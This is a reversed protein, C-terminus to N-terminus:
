VLLVFFKYVKLIEIDKLPNLTKKKKLSFKVRNAPNQRGKLVYTNADLNRKFPLSYLFKQSCFFIM